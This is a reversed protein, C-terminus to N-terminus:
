ASELVRAEDRALYPDAIEAFTLEPRDLGSALIRGRLRPDTTPFDTRRHM